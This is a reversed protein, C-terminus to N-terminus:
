LFFVAELQRRNKAFNDCGWSVDGKMHHGPFPFKELMVGGPISGLSLALREHGPTSPWTYRHDFSLVSGSHHVDFMDGLTISGITAMIKSAVIKRQPSSNKSPQQMYKSKNWNQWPFLICYFWTFDIKGNNCLQKKTKIGMCRLCM